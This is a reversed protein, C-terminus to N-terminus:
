GASQGRDGNGSEGAYLKRLANLEVVRAQVRGNVSDLPYVGDADAVGAAVGTLLTMAEDVNAVAHVAFRGGAVAEVVDARLMLHGLNARPIIVGHTGDLTRAACIDFFGEIKENVGGIAQVNGHQDVSGTIALAQRLPLRGLSSLLACLEAASASDGDVAGYSQEFVLSASLPLPQDRAYRDGLFAALILVGKSHLRGGLEVEREIDLVGAGGLRATASIRVPQGFAYDGLLYVSLGNVQGVREGGTDIVHVDRLISEHLRERAQDLRRLSADIAQQVHARGITEAAAQEARYDSERLLDLLTGTHLSLRDSDEVRRACHEIVRAVADRELARLGDNRVLRAILRAYLLTNGDDRPLDESFDAAVKFLLGFEDDHERLLYYLLREGCLVIKLDLPMAEPELSTTGLLSMLREISEVRLERSRLVRKLSEWAFPQSLLRMADLVLYGGNARHLAGPKILTFNTFLAGFNAAHEVRGVLNSYTPNDEYVVPAGRADANDVLVNVTYQPFEDVRNRPNETVSSEANPRFADVNDMVDARVADLFETVPEFAQYRQRLETFLAGVADDIMQRNLEKLAEQSERQWAPMKGLLTKLHEKLVGVAQEVQQQEEKSLKAFERPGLVQEERVPALTFGAPTRLLAIGQARAKEGLAEIAQEEREGFRKALEQTRERYEDSQFTTPIVVLLEEIARAMDARLREGTGAPLQLARPRHPARFNNVYCWDSPPPREGALRALFERVVTHRGLGTSGLVFMNYGDRHLGTGLELAELARQQGLPEELPELTATTEFPLSEATCARYLQEAALAHPAGAKRRARKMRLVWTSVSPM